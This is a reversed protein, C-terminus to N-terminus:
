LWSVHSIILAYGYSMFHDYLWALIPLDLNLLNVILCVYKWVFM